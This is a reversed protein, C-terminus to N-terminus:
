LVNGTDNIERLSPDGCSDKSAFIRKVILVILNVLDQFNLYAEINM